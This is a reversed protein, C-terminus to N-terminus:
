GAAAQRRDRRVQRAPALARRAARVAALCAATEANRPTDRYRRVAIPAHKDARPSQFGARGFGLVREALHKQGGKKLPHLRGSETCGDSPRAGGANCNSSKPMNQSLGFASTMMGAPRSSSRIAAVIKNAPGA